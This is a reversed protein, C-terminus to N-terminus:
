LRARRVASSTIAVAQGVLGVVAIWLAPRNGLVDALAGGLLAGFVIMGRNVSRMTANM